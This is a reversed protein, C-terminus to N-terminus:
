VHARGIQGLLSTKLGAWGGLASNAGIGVVAGSVTLWNPIRRTRLDTWGAVIAVLVAGALIAPTVGAEIRM